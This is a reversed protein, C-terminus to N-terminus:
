KEKRKDHMAKMHAAMEDKTLSGDKNADIEDFHKSLMPHDKAEGKSIKGDKNADMKAFHEEFKEKMAEKDHPKGEHPKGDPGRKEGKHAEHFAKMEDKSIKGDKNADIEDFHELLKSNGKAEEKSIMHDGDKDMRHKYEQKGSKEPAPSAPPTAQAYAVGVAMMSCLLLPLYTKKM